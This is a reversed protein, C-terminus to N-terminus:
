VSVNEFSEAHVYEYYYLLIQKENLIKKHQHKLNMLCKNETKIYM